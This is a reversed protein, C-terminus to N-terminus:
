YEKEGAKARNPFQAFLFPKFRVIIIKQGKFSKLNNLKHVNELDCSTTKSCSILNQLCEDTFILNGNGFSNLYKFSYINVMDNDMPLESQSYQVIAAHIHTVFETIFLLNSILLNVASPDLQGVVSRQLRQAM